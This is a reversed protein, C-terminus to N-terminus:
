LHLHQSHIYTCVRQRIVCAAGQIDCYLGLCHMICVEVCGDFQVSSKAEPSWVELCCPICDLCPGLSVDEGLLVDEWALVV